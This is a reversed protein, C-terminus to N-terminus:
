KRRAPGPTCRVSRPHLWGRACRPTRGSEGRGTFAAAARVAAAKGGQPLQRGLYTEMLYGINADLLLTQGGGRRGYARGAPSGAASALLRRPTSSSRRRREAPEAALSALGPLGRKSPHFAAM